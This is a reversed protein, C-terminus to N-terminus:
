STLLPRGAQAHRRALKRAMRGSALVRAPEPAHDHDRRPPFLSLVEETGFMKRAIHSRM